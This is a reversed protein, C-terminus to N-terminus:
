PNTRNILYLIKYDYNTTLETVEMQSAEMQTREVRPVSKQLLPMTTPEILMQIQTTSTELEKKRGLLQQHSPERSAQSPDRQTSSESNLATMKIISHWECCYKRRAAKDTPKIDDM